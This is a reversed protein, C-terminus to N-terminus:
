LVFVLYMLYVKELKHNRLMDKTNLDDICSIDHNKIIKAEFFNIGKKKSILARRSLKRQEHKLKKEMKLTFKNNDIKQGDFTM